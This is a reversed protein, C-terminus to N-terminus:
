SPFFVEDGNEDILPGHTQNYELLANRARGALFRSDGPFPFSNWDTRGTVDLLFRFKVESYEGFYTKWASDWNTPKKLIDTITLKYRLKAPYGAKLEENDKIDFIVQVTSDKLGSKRYLYVPVSASFENAKVIAPGLKYHYGAKATAGDRVQLNIIRDKPSANGIIRYNILITDSEVTTPSTAFTYEISDPFNYNYIATPEEFLKQDDKTCSALLLGVAFVLFGKKISIKM